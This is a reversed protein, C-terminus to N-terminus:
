CLEHRQRDLGRSVGATTNGLLIKTDVMFEMNMSGVVDSVCSHVPSVPNRIEYGSRRRTVHTVKVTSDDDGTEVLPLVSRPSTTSM